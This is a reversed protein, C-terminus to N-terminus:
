LEGSRVMDCLILLQGHRCLCVFIGTVAFLAFMKKRAEPGANRWREVCVDVSTELSVDGREPLDLWADGDDDHVPAGVEDKFRDVEAHSLWIDTRATRGDQRVSGHRFTEDVLKLSQNGDMAVLLSYKLPPEDTLKHLCPACANLMRWNPTDRGLASAVLNDIRYEIELYADYAESFQRILHKKAPVQHIWCLGKVFAQVSLRPCARHLQRYANLTQLSVAVTPKHPSSGLFGNSVLTVNPYSSSATHKFREKSVALFGHVVM